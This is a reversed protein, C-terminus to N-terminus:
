ALMWGKYSKKWGLLIDNMGWRTINGHERCFKRLGRDKIIFIEGDPSMVKRERIKTTELQWGKYQKFKGNLMSYFIDYNLYNKKCFLKIDGKFIVFKINEPSLIVFKEVSEETLTYNKHRFSINRSIQNMCNYNLDNEKCFKHLDDINIYENKVHNFFRYSKCLKKRRLENAEKNLIPRDGGHCYNYGNPYLTNLEKIYYIEKDSLEKKTKIGYEVISVSFNELGYKIVSNSIYDNSPKKWWKCGSYRKIFSEEAKGFYQKGNIKNTILYIIMNLKRLDTDTPNEIAIKIM